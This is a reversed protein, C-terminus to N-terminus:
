KFTLLYKCTNVISDEINIFKYNLTEKLKNNLYENKQSSTQATENTLQPNKRTFFCRIAEFRYALKLLKKSALKNPIKM